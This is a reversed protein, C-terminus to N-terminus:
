SPVNVVGVRVNGAGIAIVVDPTHPRGCTRHCKPDLPARAAVVVKGRERRREKGEKEKEREREQHEIKRRRALVKGRITRSGNRERIAHSSYSFLIGVLSGGTTSLRKKLTKRARTTTVCARNTIKLPFCFSLCDKDVHLNLNSVCM